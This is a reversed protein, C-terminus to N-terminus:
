HNAAIGLRERFADFDIGSSLDEEGLNEFSSRSQVKIRYTGDSLDYTSGDNLTRPATNPIKTVDYIGGTDLDVIYFSDDGYPVCELHYKTDAKAAGIADSVAQGVAKFDSSATESFTSVSASFERIEASVNHFEQASMYFSYSLMAACCLATVCVIITKRM